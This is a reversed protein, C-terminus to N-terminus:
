RTWRLGAYISRRIGIPGNSGEPFEVHAPEHLNRGSVVVALRPNMTVALTLNSTSYAPVRLVPLSSVHRFSWELSARGRPNLGVTAQVQHRPSGEEARREQGADVSGPRRSLEVKLASYQVTTRLWEAPRVDAIVEAGYSRGRLGNGFTVPVIVRQNAGDTEVFPADLEVSLVRDHHNRFFSATLLVRPHLMSMVGAEYAILEEPEFSPNPQLRVFTPGVPSAMSGTEFDHEVRSPTRVARMVSVSFAHATTPTWVLRAGPQWEAGSYSNHEFKTGATLILRDRVLRVEDQAFATLLHDVRDPPTFRLTGRTDTRGNVYRYGAGWLVGHRGRELGQQLDVDAMTQVESFTLESRTTRDVYTQVRLARPNAQNATWRFLLNSGTLTDDTIHFTTAPPVYTTFSDRQGIVTTYVDGQLTMGADGASWDMRGGATFLRGDDFSSGGPYEQPARVVAKASVRYHMAGTRGGYRAALRVRESNGTGATVAVGASRAAPKRIISIIGTVANAGWLAGGPGRVVEIREIDDVPMDQVEWYTGAFLPSYVARGDIMVLMARSLRDTFGRTGIAWKNADIQAVHLGPVRRLLEPISTAGSRQIDDETMVFVSPSSRLKSEPVRTPTAVPLAMLELLSLPRLDQSGTQTSQGPQAAAGRAVGFLVLACVGAVRLTMMRVGVPGRSGGEGLSRRRLGASDSM